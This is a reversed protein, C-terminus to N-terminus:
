GLKAIQKLDLVKNGIAEIFKQEPLGEKLYKQGNLDLDIIEDEESNIYILDKNKLWQLAEEIKKLYERM